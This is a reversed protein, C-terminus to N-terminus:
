WASSDQLARHKQASCATVQAAARRSHHRYKIHAARERPCAEWDHWRVKHDKTGLALGMRLDKCELNSLM